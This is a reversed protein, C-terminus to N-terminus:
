RLFFDHTSYSDNCRWSEDLALKFIDESSPKREESKNEDPQSEGFKNNGLKNELSAVTDLASKAALLYDDPTKSIQVVMSTPAVRKSLLTQSGTAAQDSDLRTQITQIQSATLGLQKFENKTMIRLKKVEDHNYALLRDQLESLSHEELFQKLCLERVSRLCRKVQGLSLGIRELEGSSLEQIESLTMLGHRAFVRWIPVLKAHELFQILSAPINQRLPSTPSFDRFAIFKAVDDDNALGLDLLDQRELLGVLTLNDVSEQAFRSSLGTFGSDALFRQVSEPAHQWNTDNPGEPEQALRLRLIEGTKLGLLKLRGRSLALIEEISFLDHDLFVDRLHALGLSALLRSCPEFRALRQLSIASGTKLGIRVLEETTLERVQIALPLFCPSAAAATDSPLIRLIPAMGCAASRVQALTTIGNECLVSSDPGAAQETFSHPM